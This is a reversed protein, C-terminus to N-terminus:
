SALGLAKAISPGFIQGLVMVVSLGALLRAMAVDSRDARRDLDTILKQASDHLRDSAALHEEFRRSYNRQEVEVVTLRTGFATDSTRRRPPHEDM